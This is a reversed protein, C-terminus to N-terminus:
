VHFISKCAKPRNDLRPGSLQLHVANMLWMQLTHLAATACQFDEGVQMTNLYFILILSAVSQLALVTLSMIVVKFFDFYLLKFPWQTFVSITQFQDRQTHLISDQKCVCRLVCFVANWCLLLSLCMQALLWFVVSTRQEKSHTRTSM